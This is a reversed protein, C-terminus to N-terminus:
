ADLLRGIEYDTQETFVAYVEAQHALLKKQEASLSDWAPLGSPRLTLEANSPIVCLQKQREFAQQRIMDWGADFKGKYKDVWQRAVITRCTCPALPTTSSSRSITRWRMM